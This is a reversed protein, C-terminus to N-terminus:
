ERQVAILGAEHLDHMFQEATATRIEIGEWDALREATRDKWARGNEAAAWAECRIKRCVEVATGTVYLGTEVILVRYITENM